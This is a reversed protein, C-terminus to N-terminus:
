QCLKGYDFTSSIHSRLFAILEDGPSFWEREKRLVAFQQHRESELYITGEESGILELTPAATKFEHIRSWHNISFGIKVMGHNALYYVHGRKGNRGTFGPSRQERKKNRFYVQKSDDQVYRGYNVIRWGWDRSSDVLVLQRGEEDPWRSSKDPSCLREIARLIIDEPINTRRAISSPPIDVVGGSDALVILDMFVHRIVYDQSISQNFLQVFDTHM